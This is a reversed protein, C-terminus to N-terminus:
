EDKIGKQQRAEKDCLKCRNAFGDRARSRRVFNDANRLLHRGCSTCTKFNEPFFANQCVLLHEHVAECIRTIIKQRFITSIYNATYSKGFQQNVQDAIAQNKYHQIKMELIKQQVDTLHARAIYFNLTDLLQKTTSFSTSDSYASTDLECFFHVIQFLHDPDELNVVRTDSPARWLFNSLDRLQDERLLAPNFSREDQFVLRAISTENKLGLPMIDVDEGFVLPLEELPLAANKAEHQLEFHFSDRLTFQERRLEVLLHRMKLYHFQNWHTVLEEAAAIQEETFRRLLEPRPPNKRKGHRLDYFNIQLDIRDIQEFLSEFIPTLEEPCHALADKRSFTEHVVKPRASGVKYILTDNFNPSEMLEDLSDEPKKDWIGARTDIQIEKEQVLNKGNETQKGWLIYNGITELEDATLPKLEFIPQAIYTKIFDNRETSTNLSWDLRLRNQIM